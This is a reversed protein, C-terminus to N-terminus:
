GERELDWMNPVFIFRCFKGQRLLCDTCACSEDEVLLARADCHEKVEALTWESLPKKNDAM